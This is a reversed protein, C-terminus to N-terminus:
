GACLNPREISFINLPKAGYYNANVAGDNVVLREHMTLLPELPMFSQKLYSKNRACFDSKILATSFGPFM